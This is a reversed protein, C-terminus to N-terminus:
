FPLQCEPTRQCPSQNESGRLSCDALVAPKGSQTSFKCYAGFKRFQIYSIYLLFHFYIVIRPFSAFELDKLPFWCLNLNFTVHTRKSTSYIYNRAHQRVNCTCLGLNRNSLCHWSLFFTLSTFVQVGPCLQRWHGRHQASHRLGRHRVRRSVNRGGNRQVCPRYKM